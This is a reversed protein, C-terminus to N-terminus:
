SCFSTVKLCEGPPSNPTNLYLLEFTGIRDQCVLYNSVHASDCWKMHNQWRLDSEGKKARTRALSGRVLPCFVKVPLQRIESFVTQLWQGPGRGHAKPRDIEQGCLMQGRGTHKSGIEQRCLM